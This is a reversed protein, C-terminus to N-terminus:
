KLNEIIFKQWLEQREKKQEETQNWISFPKATKIGLGALLSPALDRMLVISDNETMKEQRSNPRKILLVPNFQDTVPSAHLGHDGLIVIWSSEYCGAQKLYNLYSGIGQVFYAKGFTQPTRRSPDSIADLSHLGNLHIVKAYRENTLQPVAPLTFFLSDQTLIEPGDPIKSDPTTTVETEALEKGVTNGDLWYEGSKLRYTERLFANSASFVVPKVILPSMRYLAHPIIKEVLVRLSLFRSKEKQDEDYNLNSVSNLDRPLYVATGCLPYVECRFGVKEMNPLLANPETYMRDISDRYSQSFYNEETQEFVTKNVDWKKARDFYDSGSLLTPVAYFTQPYLSLFHPFYEFDKLVANMEPEASEWASQFYNREMSDALIIFLNPQDSVQHIQDKIHPYIYLLRDLSSERYVSLAPLIALIQTFIVIGALNVTKQESFNRFHFVLWFILSFIVLELVGFVPHMAFSHITTNDGGLPWLLFSGQVWLCLSFALVALLLSSFIKSRFFCALLLFVCAWVGCSFAGVVVALQQITFTYDRLNGLYITLASMFILFAMLGSVMLSKTIKETLNM